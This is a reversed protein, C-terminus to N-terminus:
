VHWITRWSSEIALDPCCPVSLAILPCIIRPFFATRSNRSTISPVVLLTDRISGEKLLCYSNLVRVETVTAAEEGCGGERRTMQGPGVWCEEHVGGVGTVSTM